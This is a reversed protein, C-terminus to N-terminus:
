PSALSTATPEERVQFSCEMKRLLFFAHKVLAHEGSNERTNRM